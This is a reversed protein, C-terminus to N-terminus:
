YLAQCFMKECNYKSTCDPLRLTYILTSLTIFYTILTILSPIRYKNLLSHDTATMGRVNLIGLPIGIFFGGMHGFNDM